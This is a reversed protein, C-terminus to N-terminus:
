LRKFATIDRITAIRSDKGKISNIKATNQIWKESGDACLIKYELIGSNELNSLDNNQLKKKYEPHVINERWFEHGNSYLIDLSYGCIESIAKNLYLYSNTEIDTIAIGDNMNIINMGLLELLKQNEKEETCDKIIGFEIKEGSVAATYIFHNVWRVNNNDLKIRYYFEIQGCKLEKLVRKRDKHYIYKEWIGADKYFFSKDINYLKEVANNIYTYHRYPTLKIIWVVHDLRSLVNEILFLKEELAKEVSVDDIYGIIEEIKGSKDIVPKITIKGTLVPGSIKEIAVDIGTISRGTSIVNKELETIRLLSESVKFLDSSRLGITQTDASIQFYSLFMKNTYKFKLDKGKKYILQNSFDLIASYEIYKRQYEETAWQLEENRKQLAILIKQRASESKSSYDFVSKELESLKNYFFPKININDNQLDSIEKVDVCLINAILRINFESPKNAGREWRQITKLSKGSTKAIERQRVKKRKRIEKFKDFYFTM